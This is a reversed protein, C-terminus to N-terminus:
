RTGGYHLFIDALKVFFTSFEYFIRSMWLINYFMDFHLVFHQM